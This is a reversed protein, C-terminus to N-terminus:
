DAKSAEVMKLYAVRIQDLALQYIIKGPWYPGNWKVIEIIPGQKGVTSTETSDVLSLIRYQSGKREAFIERVMASNRPIYKFLTYRVRVVKLYKFAGIEAPFLCECVELVRQPKSVATVFAPYLLALVIAAFLFSNIKHNNLTAM